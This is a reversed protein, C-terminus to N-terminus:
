LNPAVGRFSEEDGLGLSQAPIVVWRIVNGKIGQAINRAINASDFTTNFYRSIREVNNAIRTLGHLQSDIEVSALTGIYASIPDSATIMGYTTPVSLIPALDTVEITVDIALGQWEDSFGLNGVGRSISINTIMSNNRNLRGKDWLQCYFPHVHASAGVAQPYAGAIICFLPFYINKLLSLSDGAPSRLPITYNAAPATVTSSDWFQPMDIKPGQLLDLLSTSTGFTLEDAAVSALRGVLGVVAGVTSSIIGDSINGNATAYRMNRSSTSIGNLLDALPSPTTSSSVGESVPGGYNVDFGVFEAGYNLEEDLYNLVSSIFGQNQQSETLGAESNGGGFTNRVADTTSTIAGAGKNRFDESLKANFQPDTAAQSEYTSVDSANTGTQTAGTTSSALALYAKNYWMSGSAAKILGIVSYKLAYNVIGTNTTVEGGGAKPNTPERKVGWTLNSSEKEGAARKQIAQSVEEFYNIVTADKSGLYRQFESLYSMTRRATKGYIGIVNFGLNKDFIDPMLLAVKELNNQIDTGEDTKPASADRAESKDRWINMISDAANTAAGRYQLIESITLYESVMSQVSGWYDAQRSKLSYFQTSAQLVRSGFLSRTINGILVFMATLPAKYALFAYTLITGIIETWKGSSGTTAIRLTESDTMTEIFSTLSNYMPVGFRFYIRHQHDDYQESYLRGLGIDRIDIIPDADDFMSKRGMLTGMRRPDSLPTWQARPNVTFNGGWSSDVYKHDATSTFAWNRSSKTMNQRKTFFSDHVWDVNQRRGFKDPEPHLTRKFLDDLLDSQFGNM